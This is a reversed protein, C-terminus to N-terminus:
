RLKLLFQKKQPGDYLLTRAGNGESLSIEIYPSLAEFLGQDSVTIGHTITGMRERMETSDVWFETITSNERILAVRISKAEGSVLFLLPGWENLDQVGMKGRTLYQWGLAFALGKALTRVEPVPKRSTTVFTM